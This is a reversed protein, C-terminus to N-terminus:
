EPEGVGGGWGQEGIGWHQAFEVLFEHTGGYVTFPAVLHDGSRLVASLAGTIAAMGSSFLM